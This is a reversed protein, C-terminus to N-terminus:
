EGSAILQLCELVGSEKIVAENEPLLQEIEEETILYTEVACRVCYRKHGSIGRKKGVVWEGRELQKGCNWCTAESYRNNLRSIVFPPLKFLYATGIRIKVM